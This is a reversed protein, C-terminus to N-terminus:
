PHVPPTDGLAFVPELEFRFLESCFGNAQDLTEIPFYELDDIGSGRFRSGDLGARFFSDRDRRLLM